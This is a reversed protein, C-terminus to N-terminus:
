KPKPVVVPKPRRMGAPAPSNYKWPIDPLHRSDKMASDHAMSSKGESVSASLDSAQRRAANASSGTQTM